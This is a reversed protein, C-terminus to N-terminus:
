LIVRTGRTRDPHLTTAVYGDQDAPSPILDVFAEIPPRANPSLSLSAAILDLLPASAVRRLGDIFGPKPGGGSQRHELVADASGAFAPVGCLAYALLLAFAWVDSEFRPPAGELQEPAMWAPAGVVEGTGLHDGAAIGALGLDILVPRRHPGILVNGPKIDRHVLGRGHLYALAAAVEGLGDAARSPEAVVQAHLNPAAGDATRLDALVIWGDGCRLTVVLSPHRLACGLRGEREFRARGLADDTECVKLVVPRGADASGCSIAGYVRAHRSRAVLGTVRCGAEAALSRDASGMAGGGEVEAPGVSVPGRHRALDPDRRGYDRM